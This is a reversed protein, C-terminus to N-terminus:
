GRAVLEAGVFDERGNARAAHAFHVLAAVRPEVTRYRHLHQGFLEGFALVLPRPKLALSPRHRRQIVRVDARQKIDSGAVHHQFQDVALREGFPDPFARQRQILRQLVGRLDGDREVDDGACYFGAGAGGECIGAAAGDGVVVGVRDGGRFDGASGVGGVCLLAVERYGRVRGGGGDGRGWVLGADDCVSHVWVVGGSEVGCFPHVAGARM